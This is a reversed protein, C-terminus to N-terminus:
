VRERCSARGIEVTKVSDVLEAEGMLVGIDDGKILIIKFLGHGMPRMLKEMGVMFCPM